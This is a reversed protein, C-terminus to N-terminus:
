SIKKNSNYLTPPSAPCNVLLGCVRIIKHIVYSFVKVFKDLRRPHYQEWMWLAFSLLFDDFVIPMFYPTWENIPLFSFKSSMTSEHGGGDDDDDDDDDLFELM